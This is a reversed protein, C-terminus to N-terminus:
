VDVRASVRVAHVGMDSYGPLVSDSESQRGKTIQIHIAVPYSEM